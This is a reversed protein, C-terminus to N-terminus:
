AGVDSSRSRVPSRDIAAKELQRALMDFAALIGSALGHFGNALGASARHKASLIVPSRIDESLGELM